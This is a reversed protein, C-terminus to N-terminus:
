EEFFENPLTEEIEEPTFDLEPNEGIEKGLEMKLRNFVERIEKEDVIPKSFRDNEDIVKDDDVESYSKFLGYSIAEANKLYWYPPEYESIFEEIAEKDGEVTPLFLSIYKDLGMEKFSDIVARAYLERTFGTEKEVLKWFLDLDQSSFNLLLYLPAVVVGDENIEYSLVKAVTMLKYYIEPKWYRLILLARLIGMLGAVNGKSLNQYFSLYYNGKHLYTNFFEIMVPSIDLNPNVVKTQNNALRTIRFKCVTHIELVRKIQKVLIPRLFLYPNNQKEKEKEEM